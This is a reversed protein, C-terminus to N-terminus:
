HARMARHVIVRSSRGSRAMMLLDCWIFCRRLKGVLRREFLMAIMREVKTTREADPPRASWAYAPLLPSFDAARGASVTAFRCGGASQRFRCEGLGVLVGRQGRGDDALGDDLGGVVGGVDGGAVLLM